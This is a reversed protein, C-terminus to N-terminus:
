WESLTRPMNGIEAAREPTLVAFVDPDLAVVAVGRVISRPIGEIRLQDATVSPVEFPFHVVTRRELDRDM